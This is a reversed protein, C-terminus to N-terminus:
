LYNEYFSMVIRLKGTTINTAGTNKIIIIENNNFIYDANSLKLVSKLTDQSSTADISNTFFDEVADANEVDINTANSSIKDIKFNKLIGISLSTNLDDYHVQIDSLRKNFFANQNIFALTSGASLNDIAFNVKLILSSPKINYDGGKNTSYKRSLINQINESLIINKM